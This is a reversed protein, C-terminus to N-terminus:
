REIEEVEDEEKTAPPVVLPSPPRVAHGVVGESTKPCAAQEEPEVSKEAGSEPMANAVGAEVESSVAAGATSGPVAVPKDVMSVLQEGGGLEDAAATSEEVPWRAGPSEPIPDAPMAEM